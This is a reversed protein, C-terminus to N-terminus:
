SLMRVLGSAATLAGLMALALHRWDRAGRATSSLLAIALLSACGVCAIDVSHAFSRVVTRTLLLEALDRALWVLLFMGVLRASRTLSTLHGADARRAVRVGALALLGAALAILGGITRVSLVLRATYAALPARLPARPTRAKRNAVREPLHIAM